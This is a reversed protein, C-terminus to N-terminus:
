ESSARSAACGLPRVMTALSLAACACVMGAVVVLVLDARTPVDSVHPPLGVVNRVSPAKIAFYTILSGWITSKLAMVALTLAESVYPSRQRIYERWIRRPKQVHWSKPFPLVPWAWALL